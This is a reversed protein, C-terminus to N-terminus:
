PCNVMVDRVGMMRTCSVATPMLVVVRVEDSDTNYVYFEVPRDLHELLEAQLV